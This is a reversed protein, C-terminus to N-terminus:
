ANIQAILIEVDTTPQKCVFGECVYATAEGNILTRQELLAPANKSPPYASAAVVVGPRYEARIAKIMREFNEEGAEGM